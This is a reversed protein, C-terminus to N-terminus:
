FALTASLCIKLTSESMLLLSFSALIIVPINVAEGNCSALCFEIFSVLALSSMGVYDVCSISKEVLWWLPQHEVSEEPMNLWSKKVYPRNSPGILVAM